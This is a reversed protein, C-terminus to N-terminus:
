AAVPGLGLFDLDRSIRHLSVLQQFDVTTVDGYRENVGCFPFTFRVSALDGEMLLGTPTLYIGKQKQQVRKEGASNAVTAM